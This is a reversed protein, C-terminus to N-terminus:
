LGKSLSSTALPLMFKQPPDRQLLIFVLEGPSRTPIPDRCLPAAAFPESPEPCAPQRESLQHAGPAVALDRALVWAFPSGEQSGSGYADARPEVEQLM